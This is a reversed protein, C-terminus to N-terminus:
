ACSGFSAFRKFCQQSNLYAVAEARRGRNQFNMPHIQGGGHSVGSSLTSFKGHRHITGKKLRSLRNQAEQFHVQAERQVGQWSKDEPRGGLIAILQGERNFIHV